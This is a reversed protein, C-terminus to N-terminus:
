QGIAELIAADAQAAATEADLTGTLVAQACETLATEIASKSEYNGSELLQGTATIEAWGSLFQDQQFVENQLITSNAPVLSNTEWLSLSTSESVMFQIFELAKDPAVSNKGVALVWGWLTSTPVDGENVVPRTMSVIKTDVSEAPIGNDILVSRAGFADHYFGVKEQGYLVRADFRSMDLRIYGKDYLSKLWELAAIGAESNVSPNGDEDVISGGFAYVWPAFDTACTADKTSIAYPIIDPDMAKLAALAEEFEEITTPASTIGAEALLDANYITGISAITWPLGFVQDDRTALSMAADTYNEEVWSEDMMDSVDFLADAGYLMTVWNIDSQIIDIQEGGQTRIIVQSATDAWPWGVWKVPHNPNMANWEEIIVPLSEKYVDEEMSWGAFVLEHVEEEEEIEEEEVEEEVVVEEETSADIVEEQEEAPETNVDQACGAVGFMMVLVLVFTITKTIKSRMEIGKENIRFKPFIKM